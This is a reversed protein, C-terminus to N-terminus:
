VFLVLARAHVPGQILILKTWEFLICSFDLLNYLVGVLSGKKPQFPCSDFDLRKNVFHQSLITIAALM